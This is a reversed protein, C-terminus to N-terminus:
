TAACSPYVTSVHDSGPGASAGGRSGRWIQWERGAAPVSGFFLGEARKPPARAKPGTEGPGEAGPVRWFGARPGAVGAIKYGAPAPVTNM